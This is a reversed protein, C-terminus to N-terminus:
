SIFINRRSDEFKFKTGKFIGADMMILQRDGKGLQKTGWGKIARDGGLGAGAIARIEIKEKMPGGAQHAIFIAKVKNM